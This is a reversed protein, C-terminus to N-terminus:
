RVSGRWAAHNGPQRRVFSNQSGAFKNRQAAMRATEVRTNRKTEKPRQGHMTDDNKAADPATQSDSLAACMDAVRVLM